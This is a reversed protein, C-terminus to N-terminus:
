EGLFAGPNAALEVTLGLALQAVRRLYAPDIRDATDLANHQLETHEGDEILRVATIGADSFPVHDSYRGPRDLADQVLVPMDPTWGGGLRALWRALSRSSTDDPGASFVRLANSGSPGSSNGVIDFAVMARVDSARSSEVFHRSGQLGTEEAAFAVLFITAKPEYAALQRAVELLVAVGTANDNAGPAPSVWDAIDATRSDYHAGLVIAGATPDSGPFVAVVNRQQTALDRFELPFVDGTM